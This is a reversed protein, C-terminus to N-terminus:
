DACALGGVWGGAGGSALVNYNDARVSRSGGFIGMGFAVILGGAIGIFALKKIFKMM